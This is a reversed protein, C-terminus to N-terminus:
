KEYKTLDSEGFPLGTAGNAPDYKFFEVKGSTGMRALIPITTRIPLAGSGPPSTMVTAAIVAGGDKPDYTPAGVTVSATGKPLGLSPSKLLANRFDAGMNGPDNFLSQVFQNVHALVPDNATQGGKATGQLYSLHAAEGNKMAAFYGYAPSRNNDWPVLGLIKSGTSDKVEQPTIQPDKRYAYDIMESGGGPTAVSKLFNDFSKADIDNLRNQFVTKLADPTVQSGGWWLQGNRSQADQFVAQCDQLAQNVATQTDMRGMSTYKKTADEFMSKFQEDFGQNTTTKGAALQGLLGEVHDVVSQNYYHGNPPSQGQKLAGQDGVEQYFRSSLTALSQTGNKVNNIQQDWYVQTSLYQAEVAPNSGFISLNLNKRANAAIKGKDVSDLYGLWPFQKTDNTSIATLTEAPSAGSAGPQLSDIDQGPQLGLPAGRNDHFIDQAAMVRDAVYSSRDTFYKQAVGRYTAMASLYAQQTVKDGRDGASSAANSAQGMLFNLVKMRQMADGFNANAPDTIAAAQLGAMSGAKEQAKQVQLASIGDASGGAIKVATPATDQSNGYASVAGSIGAAVGGLGVPDASYGAMAQNQITQDANAVYGNVPHTLAQQQMQPVYNSEIMHATAAKFQGQFLPSQISDSLQGQAQYMADRMRQGWKTPDQPDTMISNRADNAAAELGATAQNVQTELQIRQTQLVQGELTGVAQGISDTNIQPIVISGM